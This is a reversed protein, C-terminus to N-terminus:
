LLPEGEDNARDGHPHGTWHDGALGGRDDALDLAPTQAAPRHAFGDARRVHRRVDYPGHRGRGRVAASSDPKPASRAHLSQRLPRYSIAVGRLQGDKNSAASASAITNSRKAGM